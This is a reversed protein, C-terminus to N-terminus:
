LQKRIDRPTSQEVPRRLTRNGIEEARVYTVDAITELDARTFCQNSILIRTAPSRIALTTTGRSGGWHLSTIESIMVRKRRFLGRYEITQGCIDITTVCQKIVYLLLGIGILAFFGSVWWPEKRPSVLAGVSLAFMCASPVLVFIGLWIVNPRHVTFHMTQQDATMTSESSGTAQTNALHVEWSETSM